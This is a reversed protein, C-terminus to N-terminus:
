SWVEPHICEQLSTLGELCLLDNFDTPKELLATTSFTPSCLRDHTHMANLASRHGTNGAEPKWRDEDNFIIAPGKLTNRVATLNGASIAVRIEGPWVIALTLGTALGECLAVPLHQGQNTSRIITSSGKMMGAIRVYTRKNDPNGDLAIAQFGTLGYRIHHIPTLLISPGSLRLQIRSLLTNSALGCLRKSLWPHESWLPTGNRYRRLLSQHRRKRYQNDQTQQHTNLSVNHAPTATDPHNSNHQRLWRLGNFCRLVGGHRFTFLRLCPWYQGSATQNLHLLVSCKGRNHPSLVPVATGTLLVGSTPLNSLLRPGDIGVEAAQACILDYADRLIHLATDPLATIM